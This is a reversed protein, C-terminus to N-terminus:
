KLSLLAQEPIGSVSYVFPLYNLKYQQCTTIIDQDHDLVM